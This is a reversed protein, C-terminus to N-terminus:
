GFIESSSGVVNDIPAFDDEPKTRSGFTDGDKVKQINVLGFSIGNNGAQSYAYANVTARAYCGPYFESEVIIPNTQQDVVGPREKSKLNLFIAGKVHGVPLVEKGEDNEKAKEGQDRFPTRINKPWKKKDPGWKKVGAAEAAAELKSLDAGKEFLALLSYELKKSLQNEKPKFVNPFSVRFTPTMTPM